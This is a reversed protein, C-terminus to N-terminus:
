GSHTVALAVGLRFAGNEDSRPGSGDILSMASAAFQNRNEGMATIIAMDPIPAGSKSDVLTGFVAGFTSLSLDRVSTEGAKVV